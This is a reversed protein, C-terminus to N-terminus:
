SPESPQVPVFERHVFRGLRRTGDPLEQVILGPHAPDTGYIPVGHRKIEARALERGAATETQTLLASLDQVRGARQLELIKGQAFVAEAVRGLKAWFEIQATPTRELLTATNRAEQVLTRDIRLPTTTAMGSLTYCFAVFELNSEAPDVPPISVEVM